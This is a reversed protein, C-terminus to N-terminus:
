KIPVLKAVDECGLGMGLFIIGRDDTFAAPKCWTSEDNMASLRIISIQYHKGNDTVAIRLEYPKLSEASLDLPAQDIKGTEKLWALLEDISAFRQKERSYNYEFTNLFRMAQVLQPKTLDSQQPSASAWVQALSLFALAFAINRMTEEKASAIECNYRV